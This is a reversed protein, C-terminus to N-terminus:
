YRFTISGAVIAMLVFAAILRGLYPRVAGGSRLLITRSDSM